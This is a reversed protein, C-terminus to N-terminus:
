PIREDESLLKFLCTNAPVKADPYEPFIPVQDQVFGPSDERLDVRSLADLSAVRIDASDDVFHGVSTNGSLYYLEGGFQFVQSMAFSIFRLKYLPSDKDVGVTWCNRQLDPPFSFRYLVLDGLGPTSMLSTQFRVVGWAMLQDILPDRASRIIQERKDIDVGSPPPLRNWPKYIPFFGNFVEQARASDRLTTYPDFRKWEPVKIGGRTELPFDCRFDVKSLSSYDEGWTGSQHPRLGSSVKKYDKVQEGIALCLPNDQGKVLNYRGFTIPKTSEEGLAPTGFLAGSLLCAMIIARM